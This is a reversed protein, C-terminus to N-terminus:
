EGGKTESTAASVVDKFKAGGIEFDFRLTESFDHDAIQEMISDMEEGDYEGLWEGAIAQRVEETTKALALIPIDSEGWFYCLLANGKRNKGILSM